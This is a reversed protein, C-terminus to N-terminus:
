SSLIRAFVNVLKPLLLQMIMASLLTLLISGAFNAFTLLQIKVFYVIMMLVHHANGVM